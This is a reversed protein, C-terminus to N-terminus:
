DPIIFVFSDEIHLETFHILGGMEIYDVIITLCADGLFLFFGKHNSFVDLLLIDEEDVSIHCIKDILIMNNFQREIIRIVSNFANGIISIFLSAKSFSM